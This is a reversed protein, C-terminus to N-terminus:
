KMVSQMSFYDPALEPNRNVKRVTLRLTTRGRLRQEVLMPLLLGDVKEYDRLYTDVPFGELPGSQVVYTYLVPLNTERDFYYTRDIKRAHTVQVGYTSRGEVERGPVGTLRAGPDSTDLFADPFPSVRLDIGDEPTIERPRTIGQMPFYLWGTTGDNAQVMLNGQIDLQLRRRDGAAWTDTFPFHMGRVDADGTLQLASLEHWAAEGGIRALYRDIVDAVGPSSTLSDAAVQASLLSGTLLLLLISPLYKM